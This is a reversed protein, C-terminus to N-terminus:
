FGYIGHQHSFALDGSLFIWSHVNDCERIICYKTMQLLRLSFPQKAHQLVDGNYSKGFFAIWLWMKKRALALLWWMKERMLSHMHLSLATFYYTLAATETASSQLTAVGLAAAQKLRWTIKTAENIATALRDYFLRHTSSGILSIFSILRCALSAMSASLAILGLGIVGILGIPWPNSSDSLEILGIICCGVLSFHGILGGILGGLSVLSLGVFGVIGLGIFSVSFGVFSVLGFGILSVIDFLSVLNLGIIGVIGNHGICGVFGLKVLEIPGVLGICGILFTVILKPGVDNTEILENRGFAMILEILENRGFTM